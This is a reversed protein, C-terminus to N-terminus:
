VTDSIRNKHCMNKENLKDIIFEKSIAFCHIRNYNVVDNTKNKDRGNKAPLFLKECFM